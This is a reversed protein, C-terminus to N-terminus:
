ASNAESEGFRQGVPNAKPFYKKAFAQNVIAPVPGAKPAQAAAVAPKSGAKLKAAAQERRAAQAAEAIEAREFDAVNFERGDMVAIRMTRFFEPGVPLM